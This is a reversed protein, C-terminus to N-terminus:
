LLQKYNSAKNFNKRIM